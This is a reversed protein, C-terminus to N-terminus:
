VVDRTEPPLTPLGHLTPEARDSVDFVMPLPLHSVAPPEVTPLPVFHPVEDMIPPPVHVPASAARDRSSVPTATGSRSSVETIPSLTGTTSM